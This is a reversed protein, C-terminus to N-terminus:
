VSQLLLDFEESCTCGELITEDRNYECSVGNHYSFFMKVTTEHKKTAM